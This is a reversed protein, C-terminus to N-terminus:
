RRLGRLVTQLLRIHLQFSRTVESTSHLNMALTVNSAPDSFLHVGTVGLHGITRPLGRLLPFFEGYRLQMLGAGYHIGARFRHSIKTMRNRSAAGILQGTHWADAFLHLDDLTTVVGGGGWDCSLSRSRSLDVGDVFLPAIGLEGAPDRGESAAGGPLTHFLLCSADMGSPEFIREHLQDGLSVGGAEEIVRGLLVYGTDSYHFREGPAGIPRQHEQSFALLDAPVFLRNPTQTLRSMFAEGTDNPGSMYDAAGSTHMLLQLPTVGRGRDTFLGVYEREALLTPLAADLDLVGRESLRFALSAIMMKGVSASHFSRGRDGAAFELGPARLLVQPAPLSARRRAVRDTIKQLALSTTMTETTGSHRM